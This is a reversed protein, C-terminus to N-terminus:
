LDITNFFKPLTLDIRSIDEIIEDLSIPYCDHADVCVNYCHYLGCFINKTHIHGHLNWLPRVENENQTLTPYHSLYFRWKNYKILTAYQCDWGLSEYFARRRDTDHNGLIVHIQGRLSKLLPEADELNGLTLDGLIWVQDEETVRSNFREVIVKNMQNIDTFGRTGWIFSKDHALHLDSTMLTKGM